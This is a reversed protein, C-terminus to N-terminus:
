IHSNVGNRWNVFAEASTLEAPLEGLNYRSYIEVAKKIEKNYRAAEEPTGNKTQWDYINNLRGLLQRCVVDAAEEKRGLLLLDAWSLGRGGDNFNSAIRKVDDCARWLKFFLVINLVGWAVFIVALFIAWGSFDSSYYCLIM